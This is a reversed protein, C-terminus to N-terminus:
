KKPLLEVVPDQNLTGLFEGIKLMVDLRANYATIRADLLALEAQSVDSESAIGRKFEDQKARLAGHGSDLGRDTIAMSRAAFNIHRVQMQAQRQVRDAIEALDNEAQRRRALATRTAAGSAFGDFITWNVQVGAYLSNVRYKQAANISYAQEDQNTGVTASVKPRLRTRQNRYSLDNIEVQRRQNAIEINPSEKAGLFDALLQDFVEASYSVAPIEDPIQADTIAGMGALRAFSQKASVFDFEAQELSIQGREAALRVPFLDLDSIEKKALRAEAISAQQQAYAQYRRARALITKQVVLSGFSSRLQQALQRYAERYNGEAMQKAIVGAQAGNRREGWFYLPQNLSFDYYIKRVRLSDSQDARDDRAELFRYSGGVSPLLGARAEIRSNEAIELELARNLMRPSQQVAEHLIPNLGPLAREPLALGEVSASRLVSGGVVVWALISHHLKM